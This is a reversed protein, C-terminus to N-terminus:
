TSRPDIPWAWASAAKAATDWYWLDAVRVPITVHATQGALVKVRAFGRRFKEMAAEFRAVLAVVDRGVIEVQDAAGLVRKTRDM